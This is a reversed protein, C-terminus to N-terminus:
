GAPAMLTSVEICRWATAGITIVEPLLGRFQMKQLLHLVQQPRQGKECASIAVSYAIADSRLGRFQMEQLFRSDPRKADAQKEDRKSYPGLGGRTAEPGGLLM